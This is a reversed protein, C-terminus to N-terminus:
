PLFFAIPVTFEAFMREVFGSERDLYRSYGEDYHKLVTEVGDDSDKRGIHFKEGAWVCARFDLYAGM